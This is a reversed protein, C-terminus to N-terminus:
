NAKRRITIECDEGDIAWSKVYDFVDLKNLEITDALTETKIYEATSEVANQVKDSGSFGISIRDVVDFDAEKRMNQIRNIFERAIGENELEPTIETDL